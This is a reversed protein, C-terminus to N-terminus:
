EEEIGFEDMFTPDSKIKEVMSHWEVMSMNHSQDMIICHMVLPYFLIDEMEPDRELNIKTYPPTLNFASVALDIALAIQEDKESSKIFKTIKGMSLWIVKAV